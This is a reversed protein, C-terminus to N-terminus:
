LGERGGQVLPSVWREPKWTESRLVKRTVHSIRLIAAKEVLSVSNKGQIAQLYKKLSKKDSRHNWNNCTHDCMEFEVIDRYLFQLIATEKRSGNPHCEHGSSNDCRYTDHNRGSIIKSPMNVM